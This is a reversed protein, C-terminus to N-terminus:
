CTTTYEHYKGQIPSHVATLTDLGDRGEQSTITAGVHIGTDWGHCTM